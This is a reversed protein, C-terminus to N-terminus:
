SQRPVAGAFVEAMFPSPGGRPLSLLLGLGRLGGGPIARGGCAVIAAACVSVCVCVRALRFQGPVGLWPHRPGCVLGCERILRLPLMSVWMVVCDGLGASGCPGPMAPGAWVVDADGM